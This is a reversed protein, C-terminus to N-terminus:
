GRMSSAAHGHVEVLFVHARHAAVRAAYFRHREFGAIRDNRHVDDFRDCPLAQENRREGVAFPRRDLVVPVGSRPPLPTDLGEGALAVVDALHDVLNQDRGSSSTSM